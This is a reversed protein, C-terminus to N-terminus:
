LKAQQTRLLGIVQETATQVDLVSLDLILDADVPEEYPSDIGTFDTVLGARAKAYLGKRDRAECVALPTSVYILYFRGVQTTMSRVAARTAHFPAIPACLAIGGVESIRAAIWGIREVNTERDERSFGLGKSIFRRIDDGDLLVARQPLHQHIQQQVARALTSKGSGSLGSFMFVVGQSTAAANNKFGRLDIVVHSSLREIVLHESTSDPLVLHAVKVDEFIEATAQLQEIQAIHSPGRSGSSNCVLVFCTNAPLSPRSRLAQIDLPTPAQDFLVVPQSGLSSTIRLERFSGHEPKALPWVGIVEHSDKDGDDLARYNVVALATGDPDALLVGKSGDVKPPSVEGIDAWQPISSLEISCPDLLGGLVLELVDLQEFDLQLLPSNLLDNDFNAM